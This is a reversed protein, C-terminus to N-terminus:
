VVTAEIVVTKLPEKDTEWIRKQELKISSVGKGTGIVSVNTVSSGGVPENKRPERETGSLKVGTVQEDNQAIVWSYGAGGLSELQLQVTEGIQLTIKKEM